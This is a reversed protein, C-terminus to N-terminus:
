IRQIGHRDGKTVKDFYIFILIYTVLMGSSLLTTFLASDNLLIIYVCILSALLPASDKREYVRLSRLILALLLSILLMGAFGMQAYSEGLYGTNAQSTGFEAGSFANVVFGTSSKYPYTLGFMRGVQGDSFFLKPRTSFCSYYQFKISAPIFLARVAILSAVYIGIRNLFGTGAEGTRDLSCLLIAALSFLSLALYMLKMCHGSKCCFYLFVMPFLILLTSKTGLQMYFVVQMAAALAALRYKKMHLFSLFAFPLVSLTVWRILYSFGPPYAANARMVYIYNFDFAKLGAFGNYLMPVVLAFVTLIGLMVTMYNQVGKIRVPEASQLPRFIILIELLVCFFVMLIYRSSGSSFAYLTLMPAVTFAFQLHAALAISDEEWKPLAAFLLVYLVCSVMYRFASASFPLIMYGGIPYATFCYLLDLSIRYLIALGWFIVQEHAKAFSSLRRLLELVEMGRVKAATAASTLPSFTHM